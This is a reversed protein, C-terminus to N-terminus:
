QLARIVVDNERNIAYRVEEATEAVRILIGLDLMQQTADDPNPHADQDYYPNRRVVGAIQDASLSVSEASLRDLEQLLSRLFRVQFERDREAAMDPGVRLDNRYAILIALVPAGDMSLRFEKEAVKILYSEHLSRAVQRVADVNHGWGMFYITHVGLRANRVARQIYPTVGFPGFVEAKAVLVIAVRLHRGRFTLLVQQGRQRRALDDLFTMFEVTERVLEAPAIRPYYSLGLRLFERLMVRTLLGKGDVRELALCMDRLRDDGALAPTLVDNIFVSLVDDGLPTLTSKGVILEIGRLVRPDIYPRAIPILAKPLFALYANVINRARHTHYHLRVVVRGERIFTEPTTETIWAIKVSYPIADEVEHNIRKTISEFQSQIDLAVTGREASRFAWAFLKLVTSAWSEMWEIRTLAVWFLGAATIGVAAVYGWIRALFDLIDRVLDM